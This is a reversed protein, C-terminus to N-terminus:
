KLSLSLQSLSWAQTPNLPFLSHTLIISNSFLEMLSYNRYIYVEEDPTQVTISFSSSGLYSGDNILGALHKSGFAAKKWMVYQIYHHM